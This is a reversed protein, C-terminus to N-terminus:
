IQTRKAQKKALLLRTTYSTDDDTLKPADAATSPLTRTATVNGFDGPFQSIESASRESPPMESAFNGYGQANSPPHLEAKTSSLRELSSRRQLDAASLEGRFRTRLWNWPSTLDIAVRRVFVDVFFAIACLLLTTPWAQHQSRTVRLDRRFSNHNLLLNLNDQNLRPLLQGPAGGEPRMRAVQELLPINAHTVRYEQSYPVSVGSILPAHRKSPVVNLVYAGADSVDISGTYRGPAQQKLDFSKVRLDPGVATGQMDLFNTFRGERDIGHVVVEIKGDRVQTALHFGENEQSPRMTWRVVQSFFQDYQNWAQWDNAWRPGVDSTFVATRGLGYTWTALITANESETPKPSVLPVEVLPSDKLQTLVFGKLRPFGKQTFGTLAEHSSMLQPQVGGVPEFVLPKTVRRAERMFIKPLVRLNSVSYFQGGGNSAIDQLLRLNSDKGLAVTTTSIGKSSMERALQSYRDGATMGDTLIIAHKVSALSGELDRYARLVAPEMNTGGSAALSRIRLQLARGIDAKRGLAAMTSLGDDFAYFGVYDLPGLADVAARAATKAAAMKEGAMSGSKDVVLALAGVASVNSNKVQFDVPMAEELKTNSWGGAGFAEPGGIMLLGTGFQQVSTVLMEMQADSFSAFNADGGGSTRSIGALVVCDYGQLEILSTFLQSSDRLEVEIEERRLADVLPQYEGVRDVNEILLVRGKGRAYTFATVRNNKSNGDAESSDPIFEAEYTYGGAVDIRHPIPFVNIEQDLTVPIDVILESQTGLRRTVRLEGSVRESALGPANYRHLVVRGEVPQGQRVSGPIDIKEVLVESEGAREIPIVDIGIGSETISKAASALSGETENGDSLVIFRCASDEPCCAKALKLAAELDTADTPGLHSELYASKPLPDQMAPREVVAERAFAIIGVRDESHMLNQQFRSANGSAFRLMNQKDQVSISDSHDLLYFVSLRDSISIWEIGAIACVLLMLVISRVLLATIHRWRGLGALSRKSALWLVPLLALLILFTPFEFGIQLSKM